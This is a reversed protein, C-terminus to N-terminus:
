NDDTSGSKGAANGGVSRAKDKAGQGVGGGSTGDMSETGTVPTSAGAGGTVPQVGGSGGKANPVSVDDELPKGNKPADGSGCGTLILSLGMVILIVTKM